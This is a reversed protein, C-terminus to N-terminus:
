EPSDRVTDTQRFPLQEIAASQYAAVHAMEQQCFDAIAARFAPDKIWHFSQTTVPEFGRRLKHEGQAGADFLSINHEICYEIGQYYCTEFHLNDYDQEAGWYRGFLTDAGKFFLAGAVYNGAQSAMVLFLNEPMSRNILRFFDRTLYGQQGRIQYTNQYYRYFVDWIDETIDEGELCQFQIGQAVVDAREKRLNKRKRSSFSALFDDFTKYGKNQWHFQSAERRILDAQRLVSANARDPFLIHWSSAGIKDAYTLVAQEIHPLWQQLTEGDAVLVRPSQSPTFPIATLLKPYYQQGYRQYADAWGWDFVYEGYSHNKIYLPMAALMKEGDGANVMVTLHCPQWGSEAQVSGSQELARLFAHQLFPSQDRVLNDWQEVDIDQMSLGIRIEPSDDTM